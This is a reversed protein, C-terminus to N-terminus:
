PVTKLLREFFPRAFQRVKLRFYYDPKKLTEKVSNYFEFAVDDSMGVEKKLLEDYTDRNAQYDDIDEYNWLHCWIKAKGDDLCTHKFIDKWDYLVTVNEISITKDKNAVTICFTADLAYKLKEDTNFQSSVSLAAYMISMNEILLKDKKM